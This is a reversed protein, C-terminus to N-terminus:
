RTVSAMNIITPKLLEKPIASFVLGSLSLITIIHYVLITVPHCSAPYGADNSHNSRIGSYLSPYNHM